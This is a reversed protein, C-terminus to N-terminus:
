DQFQEVPYYKGYEKLHERLEDRQVQLHAPIEEYVDTFMFDVSPKKVREGEQFNTLIEKKISERFETEKEDSWLGKATLYKRFRLLPHAQEEWIKVEALNRYITSDDSTSHHGLRYTMAEILVPANKSLCYERAKTTANYVALIDNGDCRITGIGYAPGRAGVGDGRYQENTPTSIAYGNNRCFFIVPVKLTASFNLAAHADGESAAGDGFYCIVVNSQKARKLAYASGVAQPMQTSLPSSITVFAKEKSGYHCPMQRGKGVDNQNGYCQNIINTLGFDRWMLVGTERYQGFVVDNSELAAASGFHTAEEGFSTIYFSIRGQRQSEYLIHDMVNLTLMGEFMKVLKSDPITTYLGGTTTVKWNDRIAKQILKSGCRFLASNILRSM